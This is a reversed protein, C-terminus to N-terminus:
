VRGTVLRPLSSNFRVKMLSRASASPTTRATGLTAWVYSGIFNLDEL